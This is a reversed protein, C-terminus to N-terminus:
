AQGPGDMRSGERAEGGRALRGVRCGSHRAQLRMKSPQREEGLLGGAPESLSLMYLSAQINRGVGCFHFLLQSRGLGRSDCIGTEPDPSPIPIM